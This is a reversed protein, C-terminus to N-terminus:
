PPREAGNEGVLGFVTGKKVEFNIDELVQNAGLRKCVDRVNIM